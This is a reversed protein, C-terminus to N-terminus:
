RRDLEPSETRIHPGNHPPAEFTTPSNRTSCPGIAAAGDIIVLEGNARAAEFRNVFDVVMGGPDGTIRMTADAPSVSIVAAAVGFVMLRERQGALL